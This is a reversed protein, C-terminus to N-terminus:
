EKKSTSQHRTRRHPRHPAPPLTVTAGNAIRQDREHKAFTRSILHDIKNRYSALQKADTVTMDVEVWDNIRVAPSLGWQAVAEIVIIHEANPIPSVNAVPVNRPRRATLTVPFPKNTLDLGIHALVEDLM